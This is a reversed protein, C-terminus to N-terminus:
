LATQFVTQEIFFNNIGDCIFQAVFDNPIQIMSHTSKIVPIQQKIFFATWIICSIVTM